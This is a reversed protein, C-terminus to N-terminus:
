HQYLKVSYTESDGAVNVNVHDYLEDCGWDNTCERNNVIVPLQVIENLNSNIQETVYYHWKQGRRDVPRGYLARKGDGDNTGTLHGIRRFPVNSGFVRPPVRQVYDNTPRPKIEQSPVIVKVIPPPSVQGVQRDGNDPGCTRIYGTCLMAVGVMIICCQWFTIGIYNVCCARKM